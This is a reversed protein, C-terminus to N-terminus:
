EKFLEPHNEKLWDEIDDRLRKALVLMEGAEQDSVAWAREYGGINRKKRFKDFQAIIISDAKITYRLSQIVRYHHAERASRYGCAALAATAMQLAANYAIALKWHSSLGEAKCDELDRDAVGFLDAIEEPSTKHNVVWGKNLWDKLGM